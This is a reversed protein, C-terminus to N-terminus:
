QFVVTLDPVPLLGGGRLDLRVERGDVALTMGHLEASVNVPGRQVSVLLPESFELRRGSKSLTSSEPLTLRLGLEDSRWTGDLVLGALVEPLGEPADVDVDLLGGVLPQPDQSRAVHAALVALVGGAMPEAEVEATAMAQSSEVPQLDVGGGRAMSELAARTQKGSRLATVRVGDGRYVFFAPINGAQMVNFEAAYGPRQEVDVVQVVASADTGILDGGAEKTTRCPGCWEASLMVIRPLREASAAVPQDMSWRVVAAPDVVPDGSVPGDSVGAVDVADGAVDVAAFEVSDSETGGAPEVAEPPEVPLEEVPEAPPEVIEGSEQPEFDVEVFQPDPAPQVKGGAADTLERLGLVEMRLRALELEREVDDAMNRRPAAAPTCGAVMALMLCVFMRQMM